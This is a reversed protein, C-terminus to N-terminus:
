ELAEDGSGESKGELSTDARWHIPMLGAKRLASATQCGLPFGYSVSPVVNPRRCPASGTMSVKPTLAM